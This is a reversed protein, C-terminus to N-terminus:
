RPALNRPTKADRAARKASLTSFSSSTPPTARKEAKAQSLLDSLSAATALLAQLVCDLRLQDIRVSSQDDSTSASGRVIFGDSEPIPLESALPSSPKPQVKSSVPRPPSAIVPPAAASASAAIGSSARASLSAATAENVEGTAGLGHCTQCERVANRTAPGYFKRKVEEPLVEFGRAKLKEHLRAVDDGFDGINLKETSM